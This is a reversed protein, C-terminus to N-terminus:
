IKIEKNEKKEYFSTNVTLRKMHFTWVEKRHFFLFFSHRRNCIASRTKLTLLPYM